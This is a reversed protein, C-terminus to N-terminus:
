LAGPQEMFKPSILASMLFCISLCRGAGIRSWQFCIVHGPCVHPPQYLLLLPWWSQLPWAKLKAIPDVQEVGSSGVVMDQSLM